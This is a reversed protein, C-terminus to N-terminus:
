SGCCLLRVYVSLVHPWVVVLVYSPSVLYRSAVPSCLSLNSTTTAVVGCVSDGLFYLEREGLARQFINENFDPLVCFETSFYKPTGFKKQVGSVCSRSSSKSIDCYLKKRPLTQSIRVWKGQLSSPTSWPEEPFCSRNKNTQFLQLESVADSKVKHGKSLMLMLLHFFLFISASNSSNQNM